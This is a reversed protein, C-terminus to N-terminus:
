LNSNAKSKRAALCSDINDFEYTLVLYGKSSSLANGALSIASLGDKLEAGKSSQWFNTLTREKKALGMMFDRGEDWISGSRLFDYTSTPAGYKVSLADTLDKFRSKLEDGYSSTSIDIGVAIIKCLGHGPVVLVSYEEFNDNGNNLRRSKYWYQEKEEVFRGQKELEPLTMGKDLGLPGASAQAVFFALVILILNKIYM